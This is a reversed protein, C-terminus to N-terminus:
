EETITLAIDGGPVREMTRPGPIHEVYWGIQVDAAEDKIFVRVRTGIATAEFLPKCWFTNVGFAVQQAVHELTDGEHVIYAGETQGGRAARYYYVVVDNDTIKGEV